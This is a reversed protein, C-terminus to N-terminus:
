AWQDVFSVEVGKRKALGVVKSLIDWDILPDNKSEEDALIHINKILRDIPLYKEDELVVIVEDEGAGKFNPDEWPITDHKEILKSKDLEIRVVNNSFHAIKQLSPNETLSVVADDPHDRNYGGKLAMKSLIGGLGELTTFHYLGSTEALARKLAVIVNAQYRPM